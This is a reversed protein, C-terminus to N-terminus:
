FAEVAWLVGWAGHALAVVLDPQFNEIVQCIAQATQYLQEIMDDFRTQGSLNGRTAEITARPLLLDDYM